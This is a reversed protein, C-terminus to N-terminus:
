LMVEEDDLNDPITKEVFTTSGSDTTIEISISEGADINDFVEEADFAIELRNDDELVENADADLQGITVFEDNGATPEASNPTDRGGSDGHTLTIVDGATEVQVTARTLDIDGSGAGGQVLLSIGGINDDDQGADADLAEDGVDDADTFGFVSQVKVTDTVQSTSDEATQEASSQLMGATNILVGAAIAAVLVMAIFVILTGIGVQARDKDTFM